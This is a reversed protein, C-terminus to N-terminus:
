QKTFELLARPMDTTMQFSVLVLEFRSQFLSRQPPPAPFAEAGGGKGRKQFNYLTVTELGGKGGGGGGCVSQTM